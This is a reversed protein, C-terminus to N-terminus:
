MGFYVFPFFFTIPIRLGYPPLHRLGSGVVVDQSRKTAQFVYFRHLFSLELTFARGRHSCSFEGNITYTELCSCAPVSRTNVPHSSVRTMSPLKDKIYKQWWVGHVKRILGCPESMQMAGNWCWNQWTQERFSLIFKLPLFCLSSKHYERREVVSKGVHTEM